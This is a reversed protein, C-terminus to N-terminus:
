DFVRSKGRIYGKTAMMLVRIKNLSFTQWQQLEHISRKLDAGLVLGVILESDWRKLLAKM